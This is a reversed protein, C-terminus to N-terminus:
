KQRIEYECQFPLAILNVWSFSFIFYKAWYIFILCGDPASSIEIWNVKNNENESMIAADTLHAANKQVGFYSCCNKIRMRYHSLDGQM